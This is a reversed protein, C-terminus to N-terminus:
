QHKEIMLLRNALEQISVFGYAVPYVNHTGHNVIYVTPVGMVQWADASGDDRQPNPYPPLGGGDLSIPVVKFKYAKAFEKLKPAIKHCYGCDGRFFFYLETEGALQQLSQKETASLDLAPQAANAVQVFLACVILSIRLLQKM